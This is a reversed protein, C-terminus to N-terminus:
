YDYVRNERSTDAIYAIIQQVPESAKDFNAQVIKWVEVLESHLAFSNSIGQFLMGHIIEHNLSEVFDIWNREEQQTIFPDFNIQGLGFSAKVGYPVSGREVNVMLGM